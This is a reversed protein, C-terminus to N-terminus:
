PLPTYFMSAPIGHKFSTWTKKTDEDIQEQTSTKIFNCSFEVEYDHSNQLCVHSLTVLREIEGHELGLREFSSKLNTLIFEIKKDRDDRNM